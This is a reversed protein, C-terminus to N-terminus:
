PKAKRRQKKYRRVDEPDLGGPIITGDRSCFCYPLVCKSTDCKQALDQPPETSPAVTTPLPGCRAENKFTCLKNVDDFYLGSPCRNLYPYNDVCQYFRRCTAPDAFNGNGQGEPCVFEVEEKKDDSRRQCNVFPLLACLIVCVPLQRM